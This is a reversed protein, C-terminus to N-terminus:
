FWPFLVSFHRFHLRVSAGCLAKLDRARPFNNTGPRIGAMDQRLLRGFPFSGKSLTLDKVTGIPGPDLFKNRIQLEHGM